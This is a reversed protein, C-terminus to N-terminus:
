ATWGILIIANWSLDIFYFLHNASGQSLQFDAFYRSLRFILGNNARVEWGQTPSDPIASALDRSNLKTHSLTMWFPLTVVWLQFHQFNFFPNVLKAPGCVTGSIKPSHAAFQTKSKQTPRLSPVRPRLNSVVHPPPYLRNNINWLYNTNKSCKTKSNCNNWISGFIVRSSFGHLLKRPKAHPFQNEVLGNGFYWVSHSRFAIINRFQLYVVSFV